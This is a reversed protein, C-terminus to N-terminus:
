AIRCDLGRGTQVDERPKTPREGPRGRGMMNVCHGTALKRLGPRLAAHAPNSLDVSYAM